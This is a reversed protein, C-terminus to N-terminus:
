RTVQPRPRPKSWDGRTRRECDALTEDILRLIEDCRERGSM